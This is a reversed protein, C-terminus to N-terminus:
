KKNAINEKIKELVIKYVDEYPLEADIDIIKAGGFTLKPTTAAKIKLLEFDHDPKRAFATKADINLRFILQPKISAMQEYKKYEWKALLRIMWNSTHAASLGPGDYYGPVDIQPYRDTIVIIGHERLSMMKKFNRVRIASFAYIVLATILGPIKEGKTRTTKAKKSIIKELFKGGFRFNRIHRAINGSGQGLYCRQIPYTSKLAEVIDMSLTSKGSGDCGIIAILPALPKNYLIKDQQHM